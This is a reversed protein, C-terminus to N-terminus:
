RSPLVKSAKEAAEWKSEFISKLSDIIKSDRTRFAVRSAQAGNALLLFVADQDDAFWLFPGVDDTEAEPLTLVVAGRSRLDERFDSEKKRLLVLLEEHTNPKTTGRFAVDFYYRFEPSEKIQQWSKGFLPSSRTIEAPHEYVLMRVKLGNKLTEQIADHLKKYGQPYSFSSYDICDAMFCFEEYTHGVVEAIQDVHGPFGGVYHTSMQRAVEETKQQQKISDRLQWLFVEIAIALTCIQFANQPAQHSYKWRLLLYAATFIFLVVMLCVAIRRRLDPNTQKM